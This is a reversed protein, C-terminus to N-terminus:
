IVWLTSGCNIATQLFLGPSSQPAAHPPTAKQLSVFWSMMRSFVFAACRLSQTEIVIEFTAFSHFTKLVMYTATVLSLLIGFEWGAKSGPMSTTGNLREKVLPLATHKLDQSKVTIELPCGVEDTQRVSLWWVESMSSLLVMTRDEASWSQGVLGKQM